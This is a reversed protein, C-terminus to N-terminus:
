DVEAVPLWGKAELAQLVELAARQPDLRGTDVRVLPTRPAQYPAGAGPLNTIEGADSRKWLGKPDRARCIEEPCDVFVEGFRGVRRETSQRHERRPASAAILVNVGHESLMGALFGMVEYFWRREEPSYKPEPTLLPRLEDSDLIHVQAGREALLAALARALSTKGSAPLGTFFLVFGVAKM